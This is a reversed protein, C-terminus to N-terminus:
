ILVFFSFYFFYVFLFPLLSKGLAWKGPPGATEAWGVLPMGTKLRQRSASSLGLVGGTRAPVSSGAQGERALAISPIAM